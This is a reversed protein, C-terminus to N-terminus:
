SREVSPRADVKSRIDQLLKEFSSKALIDDFQDRYNKLLSVGEILVDYVRWEDGQATKQLRFEVPHEVKEKTTLMVKVSAYDEIIRQSQYDVKDLDAYHTEFAEVYTKLCGALDDPHVGQAWGDGWEQELTRGTFELWGKNFFNCLKDTGSMWIM